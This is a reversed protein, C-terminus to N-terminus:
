FKFTRNNVENDIQEKIRPDHVNDSAYQRYQNLVHLRLIKNDEDLRATEKELRATEMEYRVLRARREEIDLATADSVASAENPINVAMFAQTSQPNTQGIERNRHIEEVLTEDGGIHRVLVEASEAVFQRARKGPLLFLLRVLGQGSVVPTDRQGRGPFKFNKTLPRSDSTSSSNGLTCFREKVANWVHTPEKGVGAVRMVDYISAYGDSTTRITQGAFSGSQFTLQNMTPHITRALPPETSKSADEHV